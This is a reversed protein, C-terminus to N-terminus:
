SNLLNWRSSSQWLRVKETSEHCPDLTKQRSDARGRPAFPLPARSKSVGARPMKPCFSCSVVVAAARWSGVCDSGGIATSGIQSTSYVKAM